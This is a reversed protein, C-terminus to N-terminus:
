KGERGVFKSKKLKPRHWVFWSNNHWRVPFTAVQFGTEWKVYPFSIQDRSSFRQVEKWWRESFDRMAETHRRFLVTCGYLGNHSPYGESLYHSVQATIEQSDGLGRVLCERAEEYLCDRRYHDFLLLDKDGLMDIFINPDTLLEVGSDMYLSYEYENFVQPWHIKVHRQKKSATEGSPDVRVFAFKSKEVYDMDTFCIKDVGCLNPVPDVLIDQYDIVATYVLLKMM